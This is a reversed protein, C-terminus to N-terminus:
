WPCIEKRGKDLVVRGHRNDIAYQNNDVTFNDVGSNLHITEVLEVRPKGPQDWHIELKQAGKEM